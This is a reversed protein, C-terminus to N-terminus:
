RGRKLVSNMSNKIINNKYAQANNNGANILNNQKLISNNLEQFYKM